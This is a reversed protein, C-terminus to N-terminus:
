SLKAWNHGVVRDILSFLLSFFFSFLRKMHGSVNAKGESHKKDISLFDVFIPVDLAASSIAVCDFSPSLPFLFFAGEEPAFTAQL